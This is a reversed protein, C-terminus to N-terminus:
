DSIAWPDLLAVGTRAFDKVNRTVLTAGHTHATAAIMCDTMGPSQPSAMLDGALLAADTTVDLVRDEHAAILAVLWSDLTEAQHHDGRRRVREIGHRVEMLVLAPLHVSHHPVTGAWAAVAEDDPHHRRLASLVNTDLAYKM